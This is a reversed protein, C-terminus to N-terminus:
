TRFTTISVMVNGSFRYVVLPKDIKNCPTIESGFAVDYSLISDLSGIVFISILNCVHAARSCRQQECADFDPKRADLGVRYTIM